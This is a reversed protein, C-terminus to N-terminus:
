APQLQERLESQEEVFTQSGPPLFGLRIKNQPIGAKVLKTAVMDETNNCQIIVEDGTIDIHVLCLHIHKQNFWGVRMVMYRMRDDDFLLKVESQNTKLTEYASLVQKIGQKYVDLGKEM